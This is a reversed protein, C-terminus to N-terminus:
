VLERYQVCSKKWTGYHSVSGTKTQYRLNQNILENQEILIYDMKQTEDSVFVRMNFLYSCVRM